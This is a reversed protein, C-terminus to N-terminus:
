GLLEISVVKGVLNASPAYSMDGMKKCISPIAGQDVIFEVINGNKHQNLADTDRDAKQDGLVAYFVVGSDLTIRYRSGIESGYYSGLAVMYEGNYLRFGEENTVANGDHQLKYQPSSTSTICRYDMYSKFNSSVNPVDLQIGVQADRIREAEQRALEEQIRREEELRRQEEELRKREAEIREQEELEERDAQVESVLLSSEEYEVGGTDEVEVEIPLVTLNSEKFAESIGVEIGQENGIEIKVSDISEGDLGYDPRDKYVEMTDTSATSTGVLMMSSLCVLGIVVKAKRIKFAEM